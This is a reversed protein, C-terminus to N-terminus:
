AYDIYKLFFERKDNEKYGSLFQRNQVRKKFINGVSKRYMKLKMKNLDLNRGQIIQNKM